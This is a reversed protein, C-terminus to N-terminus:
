KGLMAPQRALLKLDATQLACGPDLPQTVDLLALYTALSHWCLPSWRVKGTSDFLQLQGIHQYGLFDPPVNPVIDPANVIRWSTLGLADFAKVFVADGVRPSAFTCFIPTNIRQKAANEMIYLTGLAAGLSHGTVAVSSKSSALTESSNKSVPGGKILSAVQDAFTGTLVVAESTSDRAQDSVAPQTCRIVQLTAYIRDFGQAVLGAEPFQNFPVMFQDFNDYWEMWGETGRLALVVSQPNAQSRAIFGYFQPRVTGPAFDSMVIWATLDWGEPIGKPPPTLNNDDANHMAYAANLFRGYLVASNKDLPSGM